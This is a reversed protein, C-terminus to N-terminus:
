LKYKENRIKILLDNVFKKNVESPLSSNDFANDMKVILEEAKKILDDFEAEGRRISMLNKIEEPSRRVNIEGEAIELAMNLLRFTHMMNKSDYDKGHEKNMKIRDPNRKKLWTEYESFRKCHISYADKNFTLYAYVKKNKPISQLQVDNANPGSVIGGPHLYMAYLNHAHDINALSWDKQTNDWEFTKELINKLRWQEFQMSGNDTLVYCFDLVGKRTMSTEEWNMKKNYGRAKKIQQIAYGAFTMKCQTTIFDKKHNLVLDFIPDKFIICDEPLNLIELVTPNNTKLLELFRKIEYFVVDNTLDSVQEVYGNGLIDDLPQIFVGRIDTDSTPLQTGYARSGSIGEFIILNNKRLHEINM